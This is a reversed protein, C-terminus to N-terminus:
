SIYSWSGPATGQEVTRVWFDDSGDLFVKGNISATPWVRTVVMPVLDEPQVSNGVHAQYGTKAERMEAFRARAHDYRRNIAEADAESLQYLVMDGIVPPSETIEQLTVHGTEPAM